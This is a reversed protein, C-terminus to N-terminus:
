TPKPGFKDRLADRGLPEGQEDVLDADTAGNAKAYTEWDERSANGAPPEDDTNAQDKASDKAKASSKGSKKVVKAGPALQDEGWHKPVPPLENGDADVVEVFDKEELFLRGTDNSM